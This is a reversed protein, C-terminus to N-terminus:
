APSKSMNSSISNQRLLGGAPGFTSLREYKKKFHEVMKHDEENETEDSSSSEEFKNLNAIKLPSPLAPSQSENLTSQEQKKLIKETITKTRHLNETQQKSLLNTKENIVKAREV